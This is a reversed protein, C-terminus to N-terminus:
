LRWFYFLSGVHLAPEQYNSISCCTSGVKYQTTVAVVTDLADRLSVRQVVPNIVSNLNVTASIETVAGIYEPMNNVIGILSSRVDDPYEFDMEEELIYKEYEIKSILLENNPLKLAVLKKLYPFGKETLWEIFMSEGVSLKARDINQISRFDPADYISFYKKIANVYLELLEDICMNIDQKSDYEKDFGFWERINM